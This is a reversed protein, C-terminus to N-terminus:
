CLEPTGGGNTQAPEVPALPQRRRGAGTGRGVYIALLKQQSSSLPTLRPALWDGLVLQMETLAFVAAKRVDAAEHAFAAFLPPLLEPAAARLESASARAAADSLCRLLLALQAAKAANKESAAAAALLPRLAEMCKTPACTAFVVELADSAPAAVARCTDRCAALLRPAVLPLYEELLSGRSAAVAALAAVGAERAAESNADGAADILALLSRGFYAEWLTQASVASTADEPVPALLRLADACAQRAASSEGSAALLRMLAAEADRGGNRWQAAGTPVLVATQPRPPPMGSVPAGPQAQSQPAKHPPSSHQSSALLARSAAQPPSGAAAMGAALQQAAAAAEQRTVFAPPPQRASRPRSAAALPASLLEQLQPLFQALSRRLAGGEGAPAAAVAAVVSGADIQAAIAVLNAVAASRLFSHKDSALLTMKACWARLAPGPSAARRPASGGGGGGGGPLALLAFECM